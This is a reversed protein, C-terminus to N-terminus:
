KKDDEEKKPEEKKEEEKRPSKLSDDAEAKKPSKPSAGGNEAIDKKPEDTSVDTGGAVKAKLNQIAAMAADHRAKVAEADEGDKPANPNPEGVAIKEGKEGFTIGQTQKKADGSNLLAEALKGGEEGDDSDSDDSEHTGAQINQMCQLIRLLKERKALEELLRAKEGPDDAIVRGGCKSPKPLFTSAYCALAGIGVAWPASEVVFETTIADVALLGAFGLVAGPVKERINNWLNCAYGSGMNFYHVARKKNEDHMVYNYGYKLGKHCFKAAEQTLLAPGADYLSKCTGALNTSLEEMVKDRHEKELVARQETLTSAKKEAVPEKDLLGDGSNEDAGNVVCLTALALTLFTLQRKM